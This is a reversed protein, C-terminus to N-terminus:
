TQTDTGEGTARNNKKTPRNTGALPNTGEIVLGNNKGILRNINYTKKLLAKNKVNPRNINARGKIILKNKKEVPRNIKRIPSNTVGISIYIKWLSYTVKHTKLFPFTYERM